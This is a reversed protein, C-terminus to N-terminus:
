NRRYIYFDMGSPNGDLEFTYHSNKKREIIQEDLVGIRGKIYEICKNLTSFKVFESEADKEDPDFDHDTHKVEVLWM